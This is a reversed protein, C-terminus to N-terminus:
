RSLEMELNFELRRGLTHLRMDQRKLEVKQVFPILKLSKIYNALTIEPYGSNAYTFGSISAYIVDSNSLYSASEFSLDALRIDSPTLLSIGKMFDSVRHSKNEVTTLQNNFSNSKDLLFHVQSYVESNRIQEINGRLSDTKLKTSNLTQNQFLTMVAMSIIMIVSLFLSILFRSKEKLKDQYPKPLLNISNKAKRIREVSPYLLNLPVAKQGIDKHTDTYASEVPLGLFSGLNEIAADQIEPPFSVLVKDISRQSFQGYYYDLSDSIDRAVVEFDIDTLLSNGSVGMEDSEDLFKLSEEFGRDMSGAELHNERLFELYNDKFFLITLGDGVLRVIAHCGSSPEKRQPIINEWALSALTIRDIQFGSKILFDFVSKIRDAPIAAAQIEYKRSGDWTVTSTIKWDFYASELPFPFVKNGEWMVVQRLENHPVVPIYFCRLLGEPLSLYLNVGCPKAGSDSVIKRLHDVVIKPHSMNEDVAIGSALIKNKSSGSDISWVIYNNGLELSLCHTQFPKSKIRNVPTVTQRSVIEPPPSTIEASNM